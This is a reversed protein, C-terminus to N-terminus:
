VLLDAVQELSVPTMNWADVGVHVQATNLVGQPGYSVYTLQEGSHVHGHLIAVGENRLRWQTHRGETGNDGDYPFHSLLVEQRSGDPLPIYRRASQQVSEFADLYRRQWKHSDRHMPHGPDHNGLVLNKTGPRAAIWELATDFHKPNAVLDGLVWVIDDKGVAADWREALLADHWEVDEPTVLSRDSPWSGYRRQYAVARHGIHPDSTFFVTM